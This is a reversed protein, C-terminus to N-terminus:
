TIDKKYQIFIYKHYWQYFGTREWYDDVLYAIGQEELLTESGGTKIRTGM